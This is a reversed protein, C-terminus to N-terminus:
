CLQARGRRRSASTSKSKREQEADESMWALLQNNTPASHPFAAYTTSTPERQAIPTDFTGLKAIMWPKLARTMTQCADEALLYLFIFFIFVETRALLAVLGHFHALLSYYWSQSRRPALLTTAIIMVLLIGLCDDNSLTSLM